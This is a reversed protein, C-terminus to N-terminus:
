GKERKKKEMLPDLSSSGSEPIARHSWFEPEDNLYWFQIRHLLKPQCALHFACKKWGQCGNLNVVCDLNGLKCGFLEFSNMERPLIKVMRQMSQGGTNLDQLEMSQLEFQQLCGFVHTSENEKKAERERKKRRKKWKRKSLCQSQIHTYTHTNVTVTPM